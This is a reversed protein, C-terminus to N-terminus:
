PPGEPTKTEPPPETTKAQAKTAPLRPAAPRGTTLAAQNNKQIEDYIEQRHVPVDAPAEIGLKVFNGETRVVKVVIRGDIVINENVKRSLVLM